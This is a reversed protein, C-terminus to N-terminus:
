APLSSCVLKRLRIIGRRIRAKVTSVPAHLKESIQQQTLGKFYAMEIVERQERNLKMVATRVRNGDEAISLLDNPIEDRHVQEPIEAEADENLRTRRQISRLKDIAKNRAMAVAWTAPKGRSEEYMPSKEWVMFMTEQLVDEADQPNNLVRFATSYVIGCHAKYFERFAVVDGMGIRRILDADRPARSPATM